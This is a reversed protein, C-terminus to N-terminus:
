LLRNGPVQQWFWIATSDGVGIDWATNVPLGAIAPHSGIRGESEAKAMEQAFYAGELSAEFAEAPTSPFERKQDEFQTQAKKVYWARQEPTVAIGQDRLKDFYTVYEDPIVVGEAPLVYEPARWWPFFFFKFDLPTLPRGMRQMAQAQECMNFFDGEQGEATSEIFTIQGPAITNLSGTRIERAKDPYRACIKGFESIHLYNLTGSRMSTGVRISSNNALVLETASDRTTPIRRRITEPLANYSYLLKERFIASGNPLTDAIIGLRLNSNFLATDLFYVCIFTTVGLQRAKLAINSYHMGEYLEEQAWNMKFRVPHGNKDIITYLNNLRWRQNGLQAAPFEAM